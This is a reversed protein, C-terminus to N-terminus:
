VECDVIEAEFSGMLLGFSALDVVFGRGGIEVDVKSGLPNFPFAGVKGSECVSVMKLYKGLFVFASVHLMM